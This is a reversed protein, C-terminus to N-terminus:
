EDGFRSDSVKHITKFHAFIDFPDRMRVVAANVHKFKLRLPSSNYFLHLRKRKTKKKLQKKKTQCISVKLRWRVFLVLPMKESENTDNAYM